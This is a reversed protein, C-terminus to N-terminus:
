PMRRYAPLKVIERVALHLNDHSRFETAIKALADGEYDSTTPDLNPARKMLFTFLQEVAVEYFLGSEIDEKVLGQPGEEFNPGIAPHEADAYRLAKLKYPRIDPDTIDPAQEYHRDCWATSAPAIGKSCANRTAYERAYDRLSMSGAEAFQGFHAALPELTLHCSRCVCRKTLDDTEQECNTDKTGPPQFYEGLFAIRYRNARSRNTQFRLLFAPLTIVGAHPAERELAVWTDTSTFPLDPLAGDAAQHENQTRSYTQRQALYRFYHALPGNYHVRLSSLMGSYPQVGSTHEDVFRMIQERLASLVQPQVVSTLMCYNLNPGCGCSKAKGAALLHDCSHTGADAGTTLTYTENAQADFACVKVKKAPDADWYPHVEVWGEAFWDGAADTGMKETIPLGQADWGLDSQPKDQCMHTGDGGRFLRSKGQSPVFYVPAGGYSVSSLSFSVDSLAPNPNTWFLSEHYRRMQMRFDDSALYDDIIADPVASLGIVTDYEAVGPITGRLDISLRRLQREVPLEQHLHCVDGEALAVAPMATLLAFGLSLWRRKSKM